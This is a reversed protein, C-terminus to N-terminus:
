VVLPSMAATAPLQVMRTEIINAELKKPIHELNWSSDTLTWSVSLSEDESEEHFRSRFDIPKM